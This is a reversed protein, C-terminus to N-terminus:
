GQVWAPGNQIFFPCDSGLESALKRLQDDSLNLNYYLNLLKLAFAGDSSGGGMGAGPPINKYLIIEVEDLEPFLRQLSSFARICLNKEKLGPVPIGYTSFQFQNAPTVELVDRTPVPYFVSELDHYDDDRKAIINLGINIKGNPFVIM